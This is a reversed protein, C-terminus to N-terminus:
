FCGPLLIVNLSLDKRHLSSLTISCLTTTVLDTLDIESPKKSLLTAIKTSLSCYKLRNIIVYFNALKDHIFRNIPTLGVTRHVSFNETETHFGTETVGGMVNSKM